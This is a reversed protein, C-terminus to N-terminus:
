PPHKRWPLRRPRWGAVLLAPIGWALEVFFERLNKVSFVTVRDIGPFITVAGHFLRGTFPWFFPFGIPPKLDVVLLDLLLHTLGAVALLSWGRALGLRLSLLLALPLVAVAVFGISHLPGQHFREMFERGRVVALYDLDPINAALLIAAVVPLERAAPLRRAVQLAICAGAISHAVPSPM